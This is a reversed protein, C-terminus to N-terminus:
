RSEGEFKVANCPRQLPGTDLDSVFSSRHRWVTFCFTPIMRNRRAPETGNQAKTDSTSMAPREAGSSPRAGCLRFLAAARSLV